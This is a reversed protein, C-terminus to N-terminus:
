FLNRVFGPEFLETTMNEASPRGEEKEGDEITREVVTSV